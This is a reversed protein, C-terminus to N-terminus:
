EKITIFIADIEQNSASYAVATLYHIGTSLSDTPIIFNYPPTTLSGLVNDGVFVQVQVITGKNTSAEVFVSITERQWFEAGSQPLLIKCTIVETICSNFAFLSLFGICFILFKNKM